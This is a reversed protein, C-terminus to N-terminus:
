ISVIKCLYFLLYVELALNHHQFLSSYINVLQNSSCVQSFRNEPSVMKFRIIEQYNKKMGLYAKLETRKLYTYNQIKQSLMEMGLYTDLLWTYTHIGWFTHVLIYIHACNPFLGFLRGFTYYAFVNHPIIIFPISCLLSFSRICSYVLIYSDKYRECLIYFPFLCLFIHM